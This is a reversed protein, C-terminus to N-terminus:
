QAPVYATNRWAEIWAAQEAPNSGAQVVQDAPAYCSYVSYAFLPGLSAMWAAADTIYSADDKAAGWESLGVRVNHQRAFAVLWDLNTAGQSQARTWAGGLDSQYIDMTVVDVYQRGPWYDIPSGADTVASGPKYTYPQWAWATCFEILVNPLYRRFITAMRQFTARYNEATNNRGGPGGISWPYWNGNMEWGPRIALITSKSAALKMAVDIYYHDYVGSAAAAMDAAEFSYNWGSQTLMPVAVVVGYDPPIGGFWWGALTMTAGSCDLKRGLWSEISGLDRAATADNAIYGIQYPLPAPLSVPTLTLGRLSPRPAQASIELTVAGAPLPVPTTRVLAHSDWGGTADFTMSAAEVGNVLLKGDGGTPTAYSVDLAYTGAREVHLDVLIGAATTTPRGPDVITPTSQRM